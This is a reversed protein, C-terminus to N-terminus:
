ELLILQIYFEGSVIRNIIQRVQEQQGKEKDEAELAELVGKGPFGGNNCYHIHVEEVLMYCGGPCVETM